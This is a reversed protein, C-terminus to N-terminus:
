VALRADGAQENAFAVGVGREYAAGMVEPALDFSFGARRQEQLGAAQDHRRAIAGGLMVAFAIEHALGCNWRVPWSIPRISGVAPMSNGSRQM